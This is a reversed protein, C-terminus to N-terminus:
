QGKQGIFRRKGVINKLEDEEMDPFMEKTYVPVDKFKDMREKEKRAAEAYIEKVKKERMEMDEAIEAWRNESLYGRKLWYYGSSKEGIPSNRELRPVVSRIGYISLKDIEEAEKESEIPIYKEYNSRDWPEYDEYFYLQGCQKCRCLQREQGDEYTDDNFIKGFEFNNIM